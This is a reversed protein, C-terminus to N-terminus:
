KNVSNHRGHLPMYLIIHNCMMNLAVSYQFRDYVRAFDSWHHSTALQLNHLNSLLKLYSFKSNLLPYLLRHLLISPKFCMWFNIRMQQYLDIWVMGTGVAEDSSDSWHVITWSSCQFQRVSWPNDLQWMPGTQWEVTLYFQGILTSPFYIASNHLPANVILAFCSSNGWSFLLFEGNGMNWPSNM